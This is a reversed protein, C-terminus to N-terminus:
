PVRDLGCSGFPRCRLLRKLTLGLGRWAGHREIAVEAYESCTPLFRCAHLMHIPLINRYIQIAGTLINVLFPRATKPM